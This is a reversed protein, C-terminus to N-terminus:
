ATLSAQIDALTALDGTKASYVSSFASVFSALQGTKSSPGGDLPLGFATLAAGASRGCCKCGSVQRGFPKTLMGATGWLHRCVGKVLAQLVPARRGQSNALFSQGSVHCFYFRAICCMDQAGRACPVPAASHARLGSRRFSYAQQHSMHASLASPLKGVATVTADTNGPASGAAPLNGAATIFDNTQTSYSTLFPPALGITAADTTLTPVETSQLVM